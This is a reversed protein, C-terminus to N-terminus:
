RALHECAETIRDAPDAGTDDRLIVRNPLEALEADLHRALAAVRCAAEGLLWGTETVTQPQSM